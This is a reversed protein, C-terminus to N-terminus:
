LVNYEITITLPKWMRDYVINCQIKHILKDDLQMAKKISYTEFLGANFLWRYYGIM